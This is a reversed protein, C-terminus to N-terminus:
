GTCEAIHEAAARRGTVDAAHEHRDAALEGGPDAPVVRAEALAEAPRARPVQGDRARLERSGDLHGDVPVAAHRRHRNAHLRVERERRGPDRPLLVAERARDPVEEDEPRALPVSSSRDGPKVQTIIAGTTNVIQVSLFLDGVKAAPYPPDAASGVSVIGFAALSAALLILIRKSM